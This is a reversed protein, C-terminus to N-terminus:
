SKLPLEVWFTSGTGVNSEVGVTGGMSYAFSRCVSLGLGAGQVFEDLKVFREFIREQEAQPIGKGTDRVYIRLRASAPSADYGITVSGQRTFKLANSLFHSLIDYLRNRDTRVIMSGEHGAAATVTVNPNGNLAVFRATLEAILMDLDFDTEQLEAEGAEAKSMSMVDDFIRLLKQTNEHILATLQRREEDSEVMPMVDSFGVIANLPTRVEHSINALFASKLRDSEEAQNRARILDSEMAKQEDIRKSTGIISVPLGQENREGVTAYSESWYMADSHLANAQYQLYYDDTKGGCIDDLARRMKERDWPAVQRIYEDLPTDPPPMYSDMRNRYDSVYTITRERVDIRWTCLGLAKLVLEHEVDHRQLRDLSALESKLRRRQYLQGLLLGLALVGILGGVMWILIDSRMSFMGLALIDTLLNITM